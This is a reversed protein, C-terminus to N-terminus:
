PSLDSILLCFASTTRQACLSELLQPMSVDRTQDVLGTMNRVEAEANM